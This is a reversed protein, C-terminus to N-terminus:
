PRSSRQQLYERFSHTIAFRLGKGPSQVDLIRIAHVYYYSFKSANNFNQNQNKVM